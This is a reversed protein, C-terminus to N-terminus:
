AYGLFVGGLDGVGFEDEEGDGVCGAAVAGVGLGGDPFVVEELEEGVSFRRGLLLIKHNSLGGLIM